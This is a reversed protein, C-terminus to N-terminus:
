SRSLLISGPPSGTSPQRCWTRGIAPARQEQHKATETGRRGTGDRM